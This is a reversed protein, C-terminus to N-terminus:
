QPKKTEPKPQPNPAEPKPHNTFQYSGLDLVVTDPWKNEEQVKKGEAILTQVANQYNIM